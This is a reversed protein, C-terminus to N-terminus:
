QRKHFTFNEDYENGSKYVSRAKVKLTSSTVTGSIFYLSTLAWCTHRVSNDFMINGSKSDYTYTGIQPNSTRQIFNEDTEYFTYQKDSIFDVCYYYTRGSYEGYSEYFKQGALSPEDDDDSSSCANLSLVM